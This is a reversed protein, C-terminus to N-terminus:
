RVDVSPSSKLLTSPLVVIVVAADGRICLLKGTPNLTLQRPLFDFSRANLTSYPTQSFLAPSDPLSLALSRFNSLSLARLSPPYSPTAVLLLSDRLALLSHPLFADSGSVKSDFAFVPHLPLLTSLLSPTVRLPVIGAGSSPLDSFLTM